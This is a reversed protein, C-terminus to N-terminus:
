RNVCKRRVTFGERSRGKRMTPSYIHTAMSNFYIKMSLVEATNRVSSEHLPASYRSYHKEVRLMSLPAGYRVYFGVELYFEGAIRHVTGQALCSNIDPLTFFFFECDFLRLRFQM